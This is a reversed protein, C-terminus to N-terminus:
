SGLLARLDEVTLGVATLKQLPTPENPPPPPDILPFTRRVMGKMVTIEPDGYIKGDPIEPRVDEVPLVNDAVAVVEDGLDRFEAVGADGVIAVLGSLARRARRLHVVREAEVVVEVPGLVANEGTAEIEDVVPLVTGEVYRTVVGDEVVAFKPM